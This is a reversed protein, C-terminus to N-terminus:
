FPGYNILMAIAIFIMELIYIIGFLPLFFKYWKSMPIKAVSCFVACGMPWLLNTFGDGFQYALVAVQRNIELLDALPVMIPMVAYAMGSGSLIFFSVINQVFLMGQAAAWAPLNQLPQYLGYIISDIINADQLLVVCTRALGVMAAAAVMEACAIAFNEGIKNPPYGWFISIVLGSLLFIASMEDLYWGLKLTGYVIVAITVFISILMASHKWTFPAKTLEERDFKMSGFDLGKVLSADPHNKVKQAYRMTWWIGLGMYVVFIIWRLGIGSFLPLEAISQAIGITFPNTTSSAFGLAVALGTMALGVMADYGMAISLGVFIPILGYITDWEGYTSGALGFIIMFLPIIFREKGNTKALLRNVMGHFAGTKLISYVWFYAFLILFFVSGASVFGKQISLFFGLLTTPNREVPHYSGPDVRIVGTTPDEVRDFQGAPIVYTLVAILLIIMFMIVFSSPMELKFKKKTVQTETAM